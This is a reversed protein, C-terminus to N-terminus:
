KEKQTKIHLYKFLLFFVFISFVFIIVFYILDNYIDDGVHIPIKRFANTLLTNLSLALVFSFSNVVLFVVIKNYEFKENEIYNM